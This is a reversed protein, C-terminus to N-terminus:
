SCAGRAGGTFVQVFYTGQPVNIRYEGASDTEVIGVAVFDLTNVHINVFAVPEGGSGTVRGSLAVEAEQAQVFGWPVMVDVAGFLASRELPELM